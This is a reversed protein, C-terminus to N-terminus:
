THPLEGHNPPEDIIRNVTANDVEAGSTAAFALALVAPVYRM